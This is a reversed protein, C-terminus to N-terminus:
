KLAFGAFGKDLCSACGLNSLLGVMKVYMCLNFMDKLMCKNLAVHAM